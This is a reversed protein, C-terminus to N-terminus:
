RTTKKAFRGLSDREPLKKWSEIIADAAALDASDTRKKALTVPLLGLIALLGRVLYWGLSAGAAVLFAIKFANM